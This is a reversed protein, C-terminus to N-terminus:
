LFDVSDIQKMRVVFLTDKRVLEEPYVHEVVEQSEGSKVVSGTTDASLPRWRAVGRLLLSSSSWKSYRRLLSAM